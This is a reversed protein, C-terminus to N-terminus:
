YQREGFVATGIRVMTSGEEIAIKYDSSMGMSIEKFYEKQSFFETKLADFYLKLAQFEKRLIHEDDIFSAMGMVGCIRVNDMQIFDTSRLLEKADDLSLGFKSEENAIHFELLCDIKRNNKLGEKNIETLLRISDVSHIMTIFSAINKVKNTQLHGIMHWEIDQPLQERKGLIEQVKNEGFIRQGFNYAKKISEAPQNKSVVILRVDAPIISRLYRLKKEICM